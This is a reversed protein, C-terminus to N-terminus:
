MRENCEKGNNECEWCGWDGRLIGNPMEDILDFHRDKTHGCKCMMHSIMEERGYRGPM